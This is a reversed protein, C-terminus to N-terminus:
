AFEKASPTAGVVPRRWVLVALIIGLVFIVISINQSLTLGFIGPDIDSRLM